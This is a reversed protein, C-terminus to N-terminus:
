ATAIRCSSSASATPRGTPRATSSLRTASRSSDRATPTSSMSVRASPNTASTISTPVGAGSSNRVYGGLTINYPAQYFFEISRDSNICGSVSTTAGAQTGNVFAKLEYAAGCGAPVNFSYYGNSDTGATSTGNGSLVVHAGPVPAGFQNRVHGYILFQAQQQPPSAARAPALLLNPFVILAALFISLLRRASANHRM